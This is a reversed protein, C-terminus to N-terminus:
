RLNSVAMHNTRRLRFALDLALNNMVRRAAQPDQNAFSEFRERSLVGLLLDETAVASAARASMDLFSLEGLIAGRRIRALRVNRDGSHPVLIDVSGQLIVMLESDREGASFVMEGARFFRQEFLSELAQRNEGTVGHLLSLAEQMTTGEMSQSRTAGKIVENEAWELARDADPLLTADASAARLTDRVQAGAAEIGSVAVRSGSATIERVARSFAQAVTSDVSVVHSWDVVIYHGAGSQQRLLNQLAASAGFFLAGELAIFRVRHSNETLVAMDAASRACNSRVIAGTEVIRTLRRGNRWAYLILGAFVGMFVGTVMNFLLATVTVLTVTALDEKQTMALPQKRLWAGGIRLSPRDVSTWADYLLLGSIAALPVFTLVGSGLVALTLLSILIMAHWGLKGANVAARTPGAVPTLMFSGFLMSVVRAASIPIYDKERPEADDIQSIAEENVATNLFVVIALTASALFVDQLIGITDVGTAWVDRWDVLFIPLELSITGQVVRALTHIGGFSLALAVGSGIVLAIVGPPLGKLLRQAAIAIVLVGIAIAIFWIGDVPTTRWMLATQSVVLTLAVATNFGAFVPMPIMRAFRRLKLIHALPFLLAAGIAVAMVFMLRHVPTDVLGFGPMKQIFHDLFGLMMTTEMVRVAYVMPRGSRAGVAHMIIMGMLAALLGPGMLGIGIKAYLLAISGVTLPVGFGAGELGVPLAKKWDSWASSSTM